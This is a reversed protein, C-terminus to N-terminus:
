PYIREPPFRELPPQILEIVFGLTAETDLYAYAGDGGVGSGEASQLVDIGNGKMTALCQSLNAVYIGLHEIGEGRSNLFDRHISDGQLYQILELCLGGVSAIAVRARYSSPRGRYVCRLPPASNTKIHWPGIGLIRWYRELAAELDRVVIGVQGISAPEPLGSIM